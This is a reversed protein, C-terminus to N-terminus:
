YHTLNMNFVCALWIRAAFTKSQQSLIEGASFPFRHCFLPLMLYADNIWDIQYVGYHFSSFKFIIAIFHCTVYLSHSTQVSAELQIIQHVKDLGM